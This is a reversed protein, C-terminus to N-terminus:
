EKGNWDVLKSQAKSRIANQRKVWRNAKQIIGSLNPSNAEYATCCSGGVIELRKIYVSRGRLYIYNGQQVQKEKDVLEWLDPYERQFDEKRMFMQNAAFRSQNWLPNESYGCKPCVRM